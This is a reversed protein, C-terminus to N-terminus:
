FRHSISPGAMIEPLHETMVRDPKLPWATNLSKGKDTGAMVSVEEIHDTLIKSCLEMHCKFPLHSGFSSCQSVSHHVCLAQRSSCSHNKYAVSLGSSSHLSFYGM